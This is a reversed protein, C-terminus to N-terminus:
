TYINWSADSPEGRPKDKMFMRRREWVPTNTPYDDDDGQAM